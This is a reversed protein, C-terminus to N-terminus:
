LELDEYKKDDVVKANTSNRFVNRVSNDGGTLEVVDKVTEGFGCYYIVSDVNNINCCDLTSDTVKSNVIVNNNKIFSGTIKVEGFKEDSRVSRIDNDVGSYENRESAIKWGNEEVTLKLSVEDTFVDNRLVIDSDNYGSNDNKHIIELDTCKSFDCEELVMVRKFGDPEKDDKVVRSVNPNGFGVCDTINCLEFDNKGYFREESTEIRTDIFRNYGKYNLTPKDTQFEVVNELILTGEVNMELSKLTSCIYSDVIKIEFAANEKEIESLSNKYALNVKEAKVMEFTVGQTKEDIDLDLNKFYNYRNVKMNVNEKRPAATIKLDGECDLKSPSEDEDGYSITLRNNGEIAISKARIDISDEVRHHPNFKVGRISFNSPELTTEVSKISLKSTKTQHSSRVDCIELSDGINLSPTIHLELSHTVSINGLGGKGGVETVVYTLDQVSDFKISEAELFPVIKESKFTIGGSICVDSSVIHLHQYKPNDCEFLIPCGLDIKYKGQEKRPPLKLVIPQSFFELCKYDPGIEIVSDDSEALRESLLILHRDPKGKEVVAYYDGETPIVEFEGNNPFTRNIKIM